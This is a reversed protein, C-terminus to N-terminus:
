MRNRADYYWNWYGSFMIMNKFGVPGLHQGWLKASVTFKDASNQPRCKPGPPSLAMKLIVTIKLIM